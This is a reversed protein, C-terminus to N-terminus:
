PYQPVPLGGPQLWAVGVALTVILLGTVIALILARRRRM